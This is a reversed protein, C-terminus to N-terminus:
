RCGGNGDAQIYEREPYDNFTEFLFGHASKRKGRCVESIYQSPIGLAVAAEQMSQFSQIFNGSRDMQKVPICKKKFGMKVGNDYAHQINEQNTVWELNDVCNNLKNGDKHNVQPKKRPNPIFQMAVLRHVKVFKNCGDKSMSVYHYGWRDTFKTLMRKKRVSYVNGSQDIHYYNEYGKIPEM